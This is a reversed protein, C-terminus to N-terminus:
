EPPLPGCYMLSTPGSWPGDSVMMARASEAFSIQMNHTTTAGEAHCTAAIAYGTNTLHVDNFDCSVEGQTSVQRERWRWAPNECGAQTTAWLGVYRPTTESPAPLTQPLAEAEGVQEAADPDPHTVGADTCAILAISVAAAAARCILNSLKM